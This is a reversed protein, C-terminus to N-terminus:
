YTFRGALGWGRAAWKSGATYQGDVLFSATVAYSGGISGSARRGVRPDDATDFRTGARVLLRQAPRGEIGLAFDRSNLGLPGPTEILDLDTAVLWGTIPSVAIGARVQRDLRLRTGDPEDFGPETLNRVTVGAKVRGFTAMLGLDADFRSSARGGLAGGDDLLAERESVPRVGAAALGRVLKLTAGVAVGPAVSQVLTAGVHHSVLTQVRV